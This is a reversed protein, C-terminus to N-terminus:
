FIWSRYVYIFLLYIICYFIDTLCSAKDNKNQYSTYECGWACVCVLLIFYYLIKGTDKIKKKFVYEVVSKDYGLQIVALIAPTNKLSPTIKPGADNINSSSSIIIFVFIIIM